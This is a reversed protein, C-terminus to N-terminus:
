DGYVDIASNVESRKKILRLVDLDNEQEKTPSFLAKGRDSVEIQPKCLYYIALSNRMVYDPCTIPKPLGHWSDQTTDFIVARNFIPAISKKLKGPRNKSLSKAWLGLFGGFKKKWNPTVYILLNLKRQLKLKPHLSYDLHTNLKGGSKHTHLGGGNLGFDAFLKCKTLKELQKIFEISNLYNFLKYTEPGFKDWHNLVKKIELNNNYSKWSVNDFDPFEKVVDEITNKSLFNDIIIHNFPKSNIWKAQMNKINVKKSIYYSNLCNNDNKKEITQIKKM